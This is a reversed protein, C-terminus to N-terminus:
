YSEKFDIIGSCLDGIYKINSNNELEEIKANLFKKKKESIGALKL